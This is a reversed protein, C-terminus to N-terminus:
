RLLKSINFEGSQIICEGKKKERRRRRRGRGGERKREWKPVNIVPRLSVRVRPDQNFLLACEKTDRVVILVNGIFRRKFSFIISRASAVQLIWGPQYLSRRTIIAANNNWEITKGWWAPSSIRREDFIRQQQKWPPVFRRPLRPPLPRCWPFTACCSSM